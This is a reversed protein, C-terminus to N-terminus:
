MEPVLGSEQLWLALIWMGNIIVHFLFSYRM